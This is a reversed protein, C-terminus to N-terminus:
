DFVNGKFVGIEGIKIAGKGLYAQCDFYLGTVYTLWEATTAASSNANKPPAFAVTTVAGTDSYFRLEGKAFDVVFRLTKFSTGLTAVTTTGGLKVNGSTDVTFIEKYNNGTKADRIRFSYTLPTKGSVTALKLVYSVSTEGDLKEYLKGSARIQAGNTTDTLVYNGSSDKVTTFKCVTYDSNQYTIGNVTVLTNNVTTDVVSTSYDEYLLGVPTLKVSGAPATFALLGGEETATATGYSTGNVSIKWEGEAVGSVYYNVNGSRSVTFSLASTARVRSTAFIAAVNGVAAGEIGSGSVKTVTPATATGTADTVYMANLFSNSLSGTVSIEVRGWNGDDVGNNSKCNVGNILYNKSNDADYKGDATYARGGVKTITAGDTLSHLVLKGDGNVTTVVNGSVTPENAGNIHLLFTKKYSASAATISDYVFFYMPFNADDTYVTLMRRGVYSAQSAEYSATIDGAIYAYQVKTKEANKYGYQVGTVKGTDYTSSSWELLNAAEGPSRQGGSYTASTNTTDVILLGNHAVTAQHYYQHHANGYSDYVGSDGSLLGKYYIQFTGADDHEHNATNREKIKMFTAAASANNWESRSILQGLPAGNYLVLDLESYKDIVIEQGQSSLIIFTTYTLASPGGTSFSKLGNLNAFWTFLTDATDLDSYIASSFLAHRAFNALKPMSGDGDGFLKDGDPLQYSIISTLTNELGVYPNKGTATKIIWASYLDYYHRHGVYNSIGQHTMGSAFYVNRVAVYDGIVRAAVYNYWSPDEDYIAIAFSLYDRLIQAESGHGSVSGQGKPPFGVEMKKQYTTSATYSPDGCTGSCCSEVVGFIIQEKDAASLLPYCWDYVEAAIFMVYGYERCQDSSIYQIDLTKLYNKIAIIAEYGYRDREYAEASGAAFGQEYMFRYMFAKAEITGLISNDFNHIGKRGSTHLYPEGLIGDEESNALNKLARFAFDCNPDNVSSLLSKIVSSNLMLRAGTGGTRATPTYSKYATGWSTDPTTMSLSSSTTLSSTSSDFQAKTFASNTAKLQSVLAKLEDLTYGSGATRIASNGAYMSVNSIALKASQNGANGFWLWGYFNVESLWKENTYSGVDGSPLSFPFSALESGRESYATLTGEKFDMVLRLTQEQETITAIKYATSGGLYVNGSNDTSFIIIYNNGGARRIRFSGSNVDYGAVKSMTVNYTISTEGGLKSVLNFSRLDLQSANATGQSWILKGGSLAINNTSDSNNGFTNSSLATANQESLINNWKAYLTYTGTATKPIESIINEIDFDSSTFWGSFVYGSRTPVPLAFATGPTYDNWNGSPLTGGNTEYSIVSTDSSYTAIYTENKTGVTVTATKSTSVVTGSSNRWSDFVKGSPVSATLTVAEGSKYLGSTHGDALTGGTLKVQYYSGNALRNTNFGVYNQVASGYNLMSALLTQVDASMEKGENIKGFAMYAYKLVSSKKEAGTALTSGSAAKVYPTAYVDVTMEAASLCDVTFIYYETGDIEAVEDFTAEFTEAAAPSGKKISIGVTAGSPLNTVKVAYKIAVNQRFSLNTLEVEVTPTSAAFIAVGATFILAIALLAAIWVARKTRKTMDKVKGKM